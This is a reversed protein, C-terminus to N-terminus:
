TTTDELKHQRRENNIVSINNNENEKICTQKTTNSKTEETGHKTIVSFLTETITTDPQIGTSLETLRNM